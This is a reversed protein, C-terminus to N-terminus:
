QILSDTVSMLKDAQNPNSKVLIISVSLNYKNVLKELSSLGTWILMETSAKTHM